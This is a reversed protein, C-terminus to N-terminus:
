KRTIWEPVNIASLEGPEVIQDKKQYQATNIISFKGIPINSYLKVKYYKIENISQNPIAMRFFDFEGLLPNASERFFTFNDIINYEGSLNLYDKFSIDLSVKSIKEDKVEPDEYKKFLKAEWILRKRFKECAADRSEHSKM